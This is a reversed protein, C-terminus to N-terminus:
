LNRNDHRSFGMSKVYASYEISQQTKRIVTITIKEEATEPLFSHELAVDRAGLVTEIVYEWMQGDEEMYLVIKNCHTSM